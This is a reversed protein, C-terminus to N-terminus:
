FRHKESVPPERPWGYSVPPNESSEEPNGRAGYAIPFATRSYRSILNGQIAQHSQKGFAGVVLRQKRLCRMGFKHFNRLSQDIEDRLTRGFAFCNGSSSVM